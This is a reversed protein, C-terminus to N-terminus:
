KLTKTMKITTNYKNVVAGKSDTATVLVYYTTDPQLGTINLGTPSGAKMTVYKAGLTAISFSISSYYVQYTIFDGDPDTAPRWNIQINNVSPQLQISYFNFNPPNNVAPPSNPSPLPPTTIPYSFNNILVMSGWHKYAVM